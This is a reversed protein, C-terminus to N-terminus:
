QKIKALGKPINRGMDLIITRMTPRTQAENSRTEQPVASVGGVWASGEGTACFRTCFRVQFLAGGV